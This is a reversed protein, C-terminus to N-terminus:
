DFKAFASTMLNLQPDIRGTPRASFRAKAAAATGPQSCASRVESLRQGAARAGGLLRWQRRRWDPSPQPAWERPRSSDMGSHEDVEVGRVSMPRWRNPRTRRPRSAAGAFREPWSVLLSCRAARSGHLRGSGLAPGDGV